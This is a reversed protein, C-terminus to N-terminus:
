QVESNEGTFVNYDRVDYDILTKKLDILKCKEKIEEVRFYYM